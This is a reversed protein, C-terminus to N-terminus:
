GTQIDAQIGRQGLSEKIGLEVTNERIAADGKAIIVVDCRVVWRAAQGGPRSGKAAPEHGLM